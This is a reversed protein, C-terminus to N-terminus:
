TTCANILENSQVIIQSRTLVFLPVRQRGEVHRKGTAAGFLLWMYGRHQRSQKQCTDQIWLLGPREQLRECHKVEPDKMNASVSWPGCDPSAHIVGPAFEDRARSLMQQHSHDCINWGYRADVPFGIVLGTLLLTLSLRGSGCCIEWLAM